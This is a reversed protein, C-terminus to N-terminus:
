GAKQALVTMRGTQGFAALVCAIPFLFPYTLFHLPVNTPFRVLERALWRSIRSDSANELLYGCSAFLNDVNRQHYIKRVGWGARKLVSTITIPTFHYLHRPLDLAFWSDGFYSSEKSAANPVSLALWGNDRTWANLNRLAKIPDHLHEVVMWGVSLDYPIEPRPADELPGIHVPYGLSQAMEAAAPSTELGTPRWGQHAMWLLYGGPGCGFELLRGPPLDPIRWANLLRHARAAIHDRLTVRQAPPRHHPSYDHPYYYGMTEPTPRPNTRMLGCVGCRVVKFEGPLKHLRDRGTIVLKDQTDACGLPCPIDELAGPIDAIAGTKVSM